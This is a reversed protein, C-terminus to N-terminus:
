FCHCPSSMWYGAPFRVGTTWGAAWDSYRVLSQSRGGMGGDWAYGFYRWSENRTLCRNTDHCFTFSKKV